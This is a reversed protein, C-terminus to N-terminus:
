FSANNERVQVRNQTSSIDSETVYVRQDGVSEILDTQQSYVMTEYESGVNVAASSTELNGVQEKKINAIGIIGTAATTAAMAAALILNYPAPIGSNVGSMFAGLTGSATNIIGQTVALAKYQESSEDMTSMVEGLIDSIGGMVNQYASVYAKAINIKRQSKEKEIEIEKAKQQQELQAIANNKEMELQIALESNEEQMAILEDYYQITLAKQEEFTQMQIELRKVAANYDETGGGYKDQLLQLELLRQEEMAVEQEYMQKLQEMRENYHEEELSSEQEFIEREKELILTELEDLRETNYQTNNGNAIQNQITNYESQLAVLEDNSRSLGTELKLISKNIDAFPNGNAIDTRFSLWVEKANEFDERMKALDIVTNERKANQEALRQVEDTIKQMLDLTTKLEEVKKKHKELEAESMKLQGNAYKYLIEEEEELKNNFSEVSTKNFLFDISVQYPKINSLEGQFGKLANRFDESLYKGFGGIKILKRIKLLSDKAEEYWGGFMNIFQSNDFRANVIEKWLARFEERLEKVSKTATKTETTTTVGFKKVELNAETLDNVLEDLSEDLSNVVDQAKDRLQQWERYTKTVEEGDQLITIKTKLSVAGKAQPAVQKYFDNVTKLNEKYEETVANLKAEARYRAVLAKLFAESNEIFANELQNLTMNEMNLESLANKHEKAWTTLDEGSKKAQVFSVQLLKYNVIADATAKSIAGEFKHAEASARRAEEAAKKFHSILATVAAIIATILLMWVGMSAQMAKFAKGLGKVATAGKTNAATMATTAATDATKAATDKAAAAATSIFTRRLGDLAHTAKDFVSLGQVVAMTLQINKMAEQANESDAGMMVMVSNVANIAGVVGASVAAINSMTAGFDQNSYKAAETVEIQKQQTDALQKAVRDYEATGQELQALENKLEKIQKSLPVFSSTLDDVAKKAGTTKIDIVKTKVTESM